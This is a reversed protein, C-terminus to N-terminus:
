QDMAQLLARAEQVRSLAFRRIAAIRDAVEELLRSYFSLLRAQGDETSAALEFWGLLPGFRLVVSATYGLRALKADGWWGAERLGQLYGAFVIAELEPLDEPQVEMFWLPASAVIPALESGVPGIGSWGWDIAITEAQSSDSRRLFLNKRGADGHQLTQPVRDLATLFSERDDWLDLMPSFIDAPLSRKALPHQLFASPDAFLGSEATWLTRQRLRGKVLWPHRPLTQEVLFSGNWRGFHRAATGFDSLSWPGKDWKVVDELWLWCADSTETSHYCQPAILGPTLTNLVGSRYVLFDRKWYNFSTPEDADTERAACKLILSWPVTEGSDHGTGSFRYVGAGSSSGETLPQSQYNDITLADRDLARRVIPTLMTRDISQLDHVSQQNNM